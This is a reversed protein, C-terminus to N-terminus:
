DVERSIRSPGRAQLSAPQSEERNTIIKRRPSPNLKQQAFDGLGALLDVLVAIMRHQASGAKDQEVGQEIPDQLLFDCGAVIRGPNELFDLMQQASGHGKFADRLPTGVQPQGPHGVRPIRHWLVLGLDVLGQVIVQPPHKMLGIRGALHVAQFIVAATVRGPRHVGTAVGGLHEVIATPVQDATDVREGLLREKGVIGVVVQDGGQIGPALGLLKAVVTVGIQQGDLIGEVPDGLHGVILKPQQSRHSVWEAMDVRHAIILPAEQRTSRHRSGAISLRGGGVLDEAVVQAPHHLPDVGQTPAPRKGIVFPVSQHGRRYRCDGGLKALLELALAAQAIDVVAVVKQSSRDVQVTLGGFITVVLGVTQHFQFLGAIGLRNPQGVVVHLVQNVKAVRGTMHGAVVVIDEIAGLLHDIGVSILLGKGVIAAALQHLPVSAALHDTVVIVVQVPHHGQM